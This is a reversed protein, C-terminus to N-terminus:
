QPSGKDNYARRQEQWYVTDDDEGVAKRLKVGSREPNERMLRVAKELAPYSARTERQLERASGSRKRNAM